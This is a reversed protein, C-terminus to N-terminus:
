YTKVKTTEIAQNIDEYIVNGVIIVDAYQKMEKAQNLTTIGGGYFLLTDNLEESVQRVIDIDGYKGSYEIYFSPLKFFHEAMYAYAVADEVTPKSCNTKQYVKADENFICYGEIFLEAFDLYEKYEKIAEHHIDMMWKKDKSNLVLPIFYYDFGPVIADMTSVELIVPLSTDTLRLLLDIVDEAEINDTGGVILADTDSQKIKELDDDNIKKAPDLKFIHQWGKVKEKLM